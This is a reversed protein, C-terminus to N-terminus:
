LHDLRLLERREPLHGGADSVVQVIRERRDHRVGVEEGLAGVSAAVFVVDLPQAADGLRSLAHEVQGAIEDGICAWRLRCVRDDDAADDILREHEALVLEGLVLHGHLSLEAVADKRHASQRGLERLDEDVEDDVRAVRHGVAASASVMEVSRASPSVCTRTLKRSVPPPIEASLRVRMKSGNKVVLPSFFPLPRPRAITRSMRAACEPVIETRLTTPSPVM